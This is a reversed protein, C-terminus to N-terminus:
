VVMLDLSPQVRLEVLSFPLNDKGNSCREPEANPESSVAKTLTAKLPRGGGVLLRNPIFGVYRILKPKVIISAQGRAFCPSQFLAAFRQWPYGAKRYILTRAVLPM